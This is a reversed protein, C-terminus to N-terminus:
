SLIIKIIFLELLGGPLCDLYFPSIPEASVPPRAAASVFIMEHWVHPTENGQSKFGKLIRTLFSYFLLIPLLLNKKTNFGVMVM